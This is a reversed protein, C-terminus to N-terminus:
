YYNDPLGLGQSTIFRDFTVPSASCRHRSTYSLFAACRVRPCQFWYLLHMVEFGYCDFREDELGIIHFYCNIYPMVYFWTKFWSEEVIEAVSIEKDGIWASGWVQAFCWLYSEIASLRLSTVFTRRSCGPM